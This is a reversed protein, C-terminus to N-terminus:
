WWCYYYVKKGESLANRADKIFKIDREKDEYEGTIGKFKKTDEDWEEYSDVGFFFGSTKPLEMNLVAKELADLDEFTLQLHNSNLQWRSEELTTDNKIAYVMEMWGQLRNHKRWCALEREGDEEHKTFAYQDLGM